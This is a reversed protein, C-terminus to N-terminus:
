HRKSTNLFCGQTRFHITTLCLNITNNPYQNQTVHFSLLGSHLAIEPRFEILSHGQKFHAGYVVVHTTVENNPDPLKAQAYRFFLKMTDSVLV